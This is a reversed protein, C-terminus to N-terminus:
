KNKFLKDKFKSLLWLIQLVIGSIIIISWNDCLVKINTFACLIWGLLGGLILISPINKAIFKFVVIFNNKIM